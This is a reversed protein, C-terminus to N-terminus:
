DSNRVEKCTRGFGKYNRRENQDEMFDPCGVGLSNDCTDNNCTCIMEVNYFCTTETCRTDM